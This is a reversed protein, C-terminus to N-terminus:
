KDWKMVTKGKTNLHEDDPVLNMTADELFAREHDDWLSSGNMKGADGDGEAMGIARSSSLFHRKDRFDDLKQRKVGAQSSGKTAEDLM